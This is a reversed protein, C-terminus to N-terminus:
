VGEFEWPFVVWTDQKIDRYYANVFSRGNPKAYTSVMHCYPLMTKVVEATKGSDVLDDVVLLRSQTMYHSDLWDKNITDPHVEKYVELNAKTDNIYSQICITDIVRINLEQAIIAAPILGGRTIAVIANYNKKDLRKALAITDLHVQEWTLYIKNM